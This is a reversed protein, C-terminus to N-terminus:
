NLCVHDGYPVSVTMAVERRHLDANLCVHDGYPVSVAPAVIPHRSRTISVSMIGMPSPFAYTLASGYDQAPISVSMIGM